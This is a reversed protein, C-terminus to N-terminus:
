PSQGCVFTAPSVVAGAFHWAKFINGADDLSLGMQDVFVRVIEDHGLTDLPLRGAGGECKVNDKRGYHFFMPIAPFIARELVLNGLLVWFDARSIRDCVKQWIPELFRVTISDDETLGDSSGDSALCGDPGLRDCDDAKNIEGADHFVLRMVSGFISGTTAANSNLLDNFLSDVDLYASCIRRGTAKLPTFNTKSCLSKRDKSKADAQIHSTSNSQRQRREGPFSNLFPCSTVSQFVAIFILFSVFM